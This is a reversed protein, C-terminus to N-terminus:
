VVSKRDIKEPPMLSVKKLSPATYIGKKKYVESDTEIDYFELAPSADLVALPGKDAGKIWTSTKDYPVPLVVIKSKEWNSFLDPFDGFRRCEYM